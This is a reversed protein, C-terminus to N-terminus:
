DREKEGATKNFSEKANKEKEAPSSEKNLFKSWKLSRAFRGPDSLTGVTTKDIHPKEKKQDEESIELEKRIDEKISKQKPEPLKDAIKDAEQIATSRITEKLTEISNADKKLQPANVNSMGPPKFQLQQAGRAPLKKLDGDLKAISQKAEEIIKAIQMEELSPWKKDSGSM